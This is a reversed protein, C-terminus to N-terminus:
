DGPSQQDQFDEPQAANPNAVKPPESEHSEDEDSRSNNLLRQNSDM